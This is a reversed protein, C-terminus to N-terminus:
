QPMLKFIFNGNLDNYIQEFQQGYLQSLPRNTLIYRVNLKQLDKENLKMELVDPAPGVNMTTEGNIIEARMHAYRNWAEEMKNEPDLQKMLAKDPYFRVSNISKAGFMQPYNYASNETLWYGDKDEAVLEKIAITLRKDDLVTLGKVVPNVTAGSFLILSLITLAFIKKYGYIGTLLIVAYIMTLALFVKKGTFGIVLPNMFCIIALLGLVLLSLITLYFRSISNRENWILGIFWISTFVSIVSFAQWARGSTVFSMLTIKSLPEPIGVIAFFALLLCIALSLIGFLNERIQSKKLVLTLGLIMMPFLNISRSAEVQNTYEPVKFPLFLTSYFDALDFLKMEGGTSVRSGPYVTNMTAKLADWSRFLTLGIIVGSITITLGMLLWDLKKISKSKIATYFEISFFVLLIYAFPIQFAPYIVLVFGIISSALCAAMALKKALKKSHFYHYITVMIAMSFFVIDGLHQMFWWQIAPTYTIWISGIISLFANKKTLIMAFEFALLLMGITKFCWYWSLGKSAGLFLFGWNFPKGIVSIDMVPSNYALVMNMGDLGYSPNVLKNGTNVQSIAFPTQVLWEDTRIMRPVGIITGDVRPPISVWNKVIDGWGSSPQDSFSNITVSNSGARTEAIGFQNWNAISSGHIEFNVGLIFVMLAILYRWKLLSHGMVSFFSDHRKM